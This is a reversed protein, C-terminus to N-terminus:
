AIVLWGELVLLTLGLNLPLSGRPAMFLKDELKSFRNPPINPMPLALDFILIKITPNSAAPFVVIKYLSLSPSTTDVIGVMPKLTSVTSYLFM